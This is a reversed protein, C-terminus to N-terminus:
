YYMLGEVISTVTVFVAVGQSELGTESFDEFTDRYSFEWCDCHAFIMVESSSEFAGERGLVCVCM